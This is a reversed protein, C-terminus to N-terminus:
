DGLHQCYSVKITVDKSVMPYYYNYPYTYGYPQYWQYYQQQQM